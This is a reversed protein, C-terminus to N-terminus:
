RSSLGGIRASSSRSRMPRDQGAAQAARRAREAGTRGPLGSLVEHRLRRLWTGRHATDHTRLYARAAAPLAEPAVDEAMARAARLARLTQVLAGNRTGKALYAAYRPALAPWGMGWKRAIYIRNRVVYFWRDASWTVRREAAVKHLVELEGHYRVHWGRAIARLCFDYEEWAFFLAPDYGGGADWAARRIAHGCGVFTTAGFSDGAYALLRPPYGWSGLDDGQGDHRLIRFGIAGLAPDGEFLAVARRLVRPTAYEADNDLAAIVAGRGFASAINRGAPVGHNRDLALLTADARGAVCAAIRALAAPRSGQDLVTVHRSVRAQALASRIAACTEEARDLALIVIDVDYAGAPPAAAGAVHRAAASV